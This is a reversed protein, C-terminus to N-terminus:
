QPAHAPEQSSILKALARAYPEPLHHPPDPRFVRALEADPLWTPHGVEARLRRVVAAGSWLPQAALLRFAALTEETEGVCEFPKHRM